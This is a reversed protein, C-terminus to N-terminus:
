IEELEIETAEEELCLMGLEQCCEDWKQRLNDVMPQLLTYDDRRSRKGGGDGVSYAQWLWM